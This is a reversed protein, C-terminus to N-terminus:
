IIMSTLSTFATLKEALEATRKADQMLLSRDEPSLALLAALKEIEATQQELISQLQAIKEEAEHLKQKTDFLSRVYKARERDWALDKATKQYSM